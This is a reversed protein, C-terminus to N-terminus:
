NKIIGTHERWTSWFTKNSDAAKITEGMEMLTKMSCALSHTPFAICVLPTFNLISQNHKITSWVMYVFVEFVYVSTLTNFNLKSAIQGSINTKNESTTSSATQDSKGGNAIDVALPLCRSCNTTTDVVGRLCWGENNESVSLEQNYCNKMKTRFESVKIAKWLGLLRM